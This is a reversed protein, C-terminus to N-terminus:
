YVLKELVDAPNEDDVAYIAIEGVRKLV